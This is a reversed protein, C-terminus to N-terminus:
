KKIKVEKQFPMGIEKYLAMAENRNKIAKPVVTIEIGFNVKSTEPTMEPFVLHDKVGFSLNGNQDVNKPDLGRFDRVRPLVVSIVRNLFQGMRQRRLTTKLGVIMGERLKFGAISKLAPRPMPKQGTITALDNTLAPLVKDSFNPQTSLRGVGVNVVIKEIKKLFKQNIM